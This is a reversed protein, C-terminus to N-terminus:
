AKGLMRKLVIDKRVMHHYMAAGAHLLILVWVVYKGGNKHIADVIDEFQEWTMNLWQEVLISYLWTDSFKPIEFLLFFNTDLKTGMYGTLPMIIMIIYLIWHMSHAAFHEFKSGGPVDDPTKNMIKWIIRLLVFAGVTVGFSLHLYLAITNSNLEVSNFKGESFWHRYYVSMYAGLFGLAVLWHLIIAVLGYSQKTNKIQM